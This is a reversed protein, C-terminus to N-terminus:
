ALHRLFDPLAAELETPFDIRSSFARGLETLQVHPNTPNYSVLGSQHLYVLNLQLKFSRIGGLTAFGYASGFKADLDRLETLVEAVDVNLQGTAEERRYLYRLLAKHETCARM